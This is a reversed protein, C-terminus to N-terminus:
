ASLKNFKNKKFIKKYIQIPIQIIIGIALGIMRVFWYYPLFLLLIPKRDKVTKIIIYLLFFLLPLGIIWHLTFKPLYLILSILVALWVAFAASLLLKYRKTYKLIYNKLKVPVQIFGRGIRLSMEFGNKASDPNNHYCFADVAVGKITPIVDQFYRSEGYATKSTFEKKDVLRLAGIKGLKLNRRTKKSWMYAWLSKDRNVAIEKAHTTAILKKEIIPRALRELYDEPFVMDGDLFGLIEGISLKIGRNRSIGLGVNKQHFVKIREDKKAYEKLIKLTDDTSGDDIMLAEFNKYTQKLLSDLCPGIFKQENYVPMVLSIKPNKPHKM